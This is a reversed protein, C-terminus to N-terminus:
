ATFLEKGPVNERQMRYTPVLRAIAEKIDNDAFHGNVSDSLIELESKLANIDYEAPKAVFIKSNATKKM